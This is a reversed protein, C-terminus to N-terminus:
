PADPDIGLARLKARLREKAERERDREAAAQDREDKVRDREDAMYNLERVARERQHEAQTRADEARKRGEEAQLRLRDSEALVRETRRQTEDWTLFPLGDPRYIVLEEGSMDYRVNLLPSVWNHPDPIELLRRRSRRWVDLRPHDPNYVVYEMAGHRQYFQRKRDMEHPTNGPSLIEFVVQPFLGGEEWVLYSSRHGAPRGLAVYVDPATKIGPRGQVPYIFNDAAVLVDPRDRFMQALNERITVIWQYQLTNEAMPKGDSEPYVITEAAAPGPVASMEAGEQRAFGAQMM